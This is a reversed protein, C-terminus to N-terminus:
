RAVDEAQKPKPDPLLDASLLWAGLLGYGVSGACVGWGPAIALWVGACVGAPALALLVAATVLLCRLM